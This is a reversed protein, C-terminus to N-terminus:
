GSFCFGILRQEPRYTFHFEALRLLEIGRGSAKSKPQTPARKPRYCGDHSHHVAQGGPNLTLEVCFPREGFRAGGTRMALGARSFDARADTM